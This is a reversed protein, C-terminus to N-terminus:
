HRKTMVDIVHQLFQGQKWRGITPLNRQADSQKFDCLKDVVRLVQRPRFGPAHCRWGRGGQELGSHGTLSTQPEARIEPHQTVTRHLIGKANEDPDRQPRLQRRTPRDHHCHGNKRSALM